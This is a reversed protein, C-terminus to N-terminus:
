KGRVLLPLLRRTKEDTWDDPELIKAWAFPVVRLYHHGHGDPVGNAVAMDASVQLFTVVPIWRMVPLVDRGRPEKLWDPEAFLLNPSFWTVPDSPHQVYVVRSRRWEGPLEDLDNEDALFRVYRGNGFVPRVQPSGPERNRTTDEWLRNNFTPGTFLAGDTRAAIAPISGFPAEGAFSGLSEGFVVLKPRRAEPIDRVRESVAEFLAAGAQRAREKDVLFSIWSPLYSYQMSVLATDGNYMYELTDIESKNLWGLGTANGIAILKRQFGGTRELERVAAAAIDNLEKGSGLGAYVRIPEKAPEGNFATLQAVTPGSAINVRGERGLSDWSVTSGPGGSRLASTPPPRDAQQENNAAAFSNNLARMVNEVLVGNVLMVTLAIAVYVGLATALRPPIVKQLQRVLWRMGILWAKGLVMLVAFVLAAVVLVKPVAGFGIRDVGMLDRIGNQWRVYWYTLLVADFAAVFGLAWWWFRQPRPWPTARSVMFRTLWTFATGLAYGSAAAAGAVVAQFLWTRPLLSPTASAMLLVTAGVMGGFSLHRFRQRAGWEAVPTAEPTTM